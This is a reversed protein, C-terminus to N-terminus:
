PKESPKESPKEDSRQQLDEGANELAEGTEKAAKRAGREIAEGAEKAGERADQGLERAAEEAKDEARQVPESEAARRVGTSLKRGLDAIGRELDRNAESADIEVRKPEVRVEGNAREECGAGAVGFGAAGLAMGLTMLARARSAAMHAGELPCDLGAGPTFAHAIGMM